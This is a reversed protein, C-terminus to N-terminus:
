MAHYKDADIVHSAAELIHPYLQEHLCGSDTDIFKDEVEHIDKDKEFEQIEAHRWFKIKYNGSVINELDWNAKIASSHKRLDQLFSPYSSYDTNLSKIQKSSM